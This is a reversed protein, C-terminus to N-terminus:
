VTATVPNPKNLRPHLQKRPRTPHPDFGYRANRQERKSIDNVTASAPNPNVTKSPPTTPTLVMDQTVNDCHMNLM